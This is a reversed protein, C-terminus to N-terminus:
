FQKSLEGFIKLIYRLYLLIPSNDIKRHVGIENLQREVSFLIPQCHSIVAYVDAEHTNLCRVARMRSGYEMKNMGVGFRSRSLTPSCLM